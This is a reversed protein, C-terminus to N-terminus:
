KVNSSVPQPSNRRASLHFRGYCVSLLAVLFVAVTALAIKAIKPSRREGKFSNAFLHRTAVITLRDFYNLQPRGLTRPSEEGGANSSPMQEPIKAEVLWEDVREVGIAFDKGSAVCYRVMAIVQAGNLRLQITEGPDMADHM